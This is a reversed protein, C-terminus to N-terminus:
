IKFRKILTKLHLTTGTYINRHGIKKLEVYNNIELTKKFATINTNFWM